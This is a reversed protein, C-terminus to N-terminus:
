SPMPERSRSRYWAATRSIADELGIEASFGLEQRLRSTDPVYRDHPDSPAGEVVVGSGGTVRNVTHALDEICLERDSGVNYARGVAGNCLIMLLAAVLDTMYLYSRLPRGDSKVQIPRGGAADAIFNGIAFHGAFPMHPGVFAFCRAIRVPVGRLAAIAACLEAARKGEAYANHALSPDPGCADAESFRAQGARAPGYVAGSSLLLMSKCRPSAADLVKRTGDVLTEFLAQTADAGADVSNDAAGHVVHSFHGGLSLHRVDAKVWKIRPEAVFQPFRTLFRRPERSVATISLNLGMLEDAACLADLLWVGFWGTAGTLLVSAGSLAEFEARRAMALQGLEEGSLGSRSRIM